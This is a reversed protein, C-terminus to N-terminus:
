VAVDPVPYQLNCNPGGTGARQLLLFHIRAADWLAKEATKVECVEQVEKAEVHKSVVEQALQAHQAEGVALAVKVKDHTAM